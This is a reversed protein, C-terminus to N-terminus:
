PKSMKNFGDVKIRIDALIARLGTTFDFKTIELKVLLRVFPENM